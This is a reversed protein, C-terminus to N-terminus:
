PLSQWQGFFSQEQAGTPPSSTRDWVTSLHLGLHTLVDADEQILQITTPTRLVEFHKVVSGDPRHQLWSGDPQLDFLVRGSTGSEVFQKRCDDHFRPSETEFLGVSEFLPALAREVRMRDAPQAVHFRVERMGLENWYSLMSSYTRQGQACSFQQQRCKVATVLLFDHGPPDSEALSNAIQCLEAIFRDFAEHWPTVMGLGTGSRRGIYMGPEMLIAALPPPNSKPAKAVNAAFPNNVELQLMAQLKPWSAEMTPPVNVRPHTGDLVQQLEQEVGQVLSRYREQLLHEGLFRLQEHAFLLAERGKQYSTAGASPPPDPVPPPLVEDIAPRTVSPGDDTSRPAPSTALPPPDAPAVGTPPNRPPGFEPPPPINEPVPLTPRLDFKPVDQAEAVEEAGPQPPGDATPPKTTNWVSRIMVLSVVVVLVVGAAVGTMLMTFQTPDKPLSLTTLFQVWDFSDPAPAVKRPPRTAPGLPKVTATRLPLPASPVAGLGPSPHTSAPQQPPPNQAPYDGRAPGPVGSGYAAPGPRRAVSAQALKARLQEDYKSKQPASLLCTSALAVEQLLKQSLAVHKGTQKTRLHTTQRDAAEQIVVLDSEFVELGLIRYHNPPQQDKPIGLWVRYPDFDTTETPQNV